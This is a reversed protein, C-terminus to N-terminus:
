YGYGGAGSSAAPAASGSATVEHWVGNLGNGKAQGSQTDGVYTYLPHGNYTAQTSGGARTITGLTGTVGSTGAVPGKVPPWVQACSGNCKSATASDPAFMYLTFGKANTLVTTGGIMTTKLASGSAASGSAATPAAGAAGGSGSSSCAAVTLAAAVVAAPALLGMRWPHRGRGSAERRRGWRAALRVPGPRVTNQQTM